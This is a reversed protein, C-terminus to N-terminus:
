KLDNWRRYAEALRQEAARVEEELAKQREFYAETLRSKGSVTGIREGPRPELGEERKRRAEDLAKQAAVVEAYARELEDTARQALAVSAAALLAVFVAIGRTM